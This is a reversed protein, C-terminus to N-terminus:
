ENESPEFVDQHGLDTHIEEATLDPAAEAAPKERTEVPYYGPGKRSESGAFEEMTRASYVSLCEELWKEPYPYSMAFEYLRLISDELIQDNKGTALCEVFEQFEPTAEEFYSELLEQVM